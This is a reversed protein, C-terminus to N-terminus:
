QKQWIRLGNVIKIKQPAIDHVKTVIKNCIIELTDLTHTKYITTYWGQEVQSQHQKSIM